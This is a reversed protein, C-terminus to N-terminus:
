APASTSPSGSLQANQAVSITGDQNETLAFQGAGSGVLTAESVTVSNPAVVNANTIATNLAARVATANAGLAAFVQAPTAGNPNNWILNFWQTLQAAQQATLANLGRQINIAALQDPPLTFLSM